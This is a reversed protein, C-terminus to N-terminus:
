ADLQAALRFIPRKPSRLGSLVLGYWHCIAAAGLRLVEVLDETRSCHCCGRQMVGAGALVAPSATPSLRLIL